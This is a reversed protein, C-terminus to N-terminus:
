SPLPTLRWTVLWHGDVRQLVFLDRGSDSSTLGAWVYEIDWAYVAVATDGAIDVQAPKQEFSTVMSNTVFDTYTKVCADRGELRVEGGAAGGTFVVDEHLFRATEGPTNRHAWCENLDRLLQDIEATTTEDAPM